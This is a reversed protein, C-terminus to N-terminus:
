DMGSVKSGTLYSSLEKLAPPTTIDEALLPLLIIEKDKFSDVIEKIYV